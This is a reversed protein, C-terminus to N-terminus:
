RAEQRHRGLRDDGAGALRKLTKMAYDLQFDKIGKKELEGATATFRPDPTDDAELLKDEVKAQALLHRRLDAERVVSATRTTPTAVAAARRHGARDRGGSGLPGVAHLLAGHDAAARTQPGTQVVTQVSGKGFSRRAWSWRAAIIRCRAPSSRRRRPPAPTSWCSRGAPRPGHRRAQAYYREIDDKERGRQSVIEGSSSSPTASTSRRTSCAARTPACTSSMASRIAAPRRTSRWWRRRPRSASTARRLHQHQHLRRRGQDGVQGPPARHARPDHHRRVAQRPGPPRHDAQDAHGADGRMKDVAEDLTCATSCSATSTPSTTAPRSARRAM